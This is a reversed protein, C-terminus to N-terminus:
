FRAQNAVLRLASCRLANRREGIDRMSLDHRFIATIPNRASGKEKRDVKEVSTGVQQDLMDLPQALRDAPHVEPRGEVDVGPSNEGVVHV